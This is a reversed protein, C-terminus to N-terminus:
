KSTCDGTPPQMPEYIKFARDLGDSQFAHKQICPATDGVGMVKLLSIIFLWAGTVRSGHWRCL